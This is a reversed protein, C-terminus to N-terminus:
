LDRGRPRKPASAKKEDLAKRLGDAYSRGALEVVQIFAERHRESDGSAHERKYLQIAATTSDHVARNRKGECEICEAIHRITTMAKSCTGCSRSVTAFAEAKTVGALRAALTTPGTRSKDALRRREALEDEHDDRPMDEDDSM